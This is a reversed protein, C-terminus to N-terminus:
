PRSNSQPLPQPDTLNTLGSLPRLDAIVSGSLSLETRTSLLKEAQHCDQTKAELLLANVTHKIEWSSNAKNLCWDAFTRPNTTEPLPIAQAPFSSVLLFVFLTGLSRVGSLTTASNNKLQHHKKVKM